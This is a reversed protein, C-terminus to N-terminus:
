KELEVYISKVLNCFLMRLIKNLYEPFFEM